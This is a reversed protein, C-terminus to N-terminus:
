FQNGIEIKKSFRCPNRRSAFTACSPQLSKIFRNGDKTFLIIISWWCYIKVSVREMITNQLLIVYFVIGGQVSPECCGATCCDSSRCGSCIGRCCLISAVLAVLSEIILLAMSGSCFKLEWRYLREEEDLVERWNLTCHSDDLICSKWQEVIEKDRYACFDLIILDLYFCFTTM